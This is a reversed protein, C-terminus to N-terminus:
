EDAGVALAHLAADLLAPHLGYGGAEGAREEPLRVEAYREEGREWAAVLGQFGPGYVLGAEALGEYLGGLELERAGAPPWDRLERGAGGVAPGLTGSANRSWGEEGEARSHFGLRRRGEGDAGGGVVQVQVWGVEPVELPMELTLAEVRELGVRGGAHLALELYATGPVLVRGQVRHEGLWGQGALSLRGTLVEGEGEALEAAGLGASGVEGAGGGAAELWYRQRQFAYTPLEVRRGGGHVRGWDVELGQVYLEGLGKLVRERGGEGRRLTGVVAARGGTEEVTEELALVLVPHPSVEVLYRHGSGLLARTAAEVRVERRLNRYWYGADLEETDLEGGSVTSYFGVEARWREPRVWM